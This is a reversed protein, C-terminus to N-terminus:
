LWGARVIAAVGSGTRPRPILFSLSRSASSLSAVSAVQRALEGDSWRVSSPGFAHRAYLYASGPEDFHSSARRLLARRLHRLGPPRVGSAPRGLLAAAAAPLLYVGSGVV